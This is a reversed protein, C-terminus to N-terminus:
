VGTCLAQIVGAVELNNNIRILKGGISPYDDLENKM